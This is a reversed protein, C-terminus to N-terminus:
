RPTHFRSKTGPVFHDIQQIASWAFLNLQNNGMFTHSKDHRYLASFQTNKLNPYVEALHTNEKIHPASLAFFINDWLQMSVESPLHMFTCVMGYNIITRRENCSKSLIPEVAGIWESYLPADHPVVQPHNFSYLLQTRLLGGHKNNRHDKFKKKLCYLISVQTTYDM